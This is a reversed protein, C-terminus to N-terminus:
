ANLLQCVFVAIKQHSDICFGCDRDILKRKLRGPQMIKDLSKVPAPPFGDATLAEEGLQEPKALLSLHDLSPRRLGSLGLGLSRCIRM